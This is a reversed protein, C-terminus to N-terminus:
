GRDRIYEPTAMQLRRPALGRVVAELDDVVMQGIHDYSDQGGGARHPSMVVGRASRIPHDLPLPEEPFVDVAARFRGAVVLDTLADFDVLHSRSMLVFLADPRILSLLRRDLMARNSATPVALVYIVRNDRLLDELAAPEVGDARLCADTVWPDYAQIRCGFPALLPALAHGLSGYGIFGVPKGYLSTDEFMGASGWQETGSRMAADQSAIERWACLTLGLAMEAVAPAFGPACTLMRIGREFATTYDFDRPSPFSGGVELVARLRPFAGVPGYRWGGTVIAVTRDRVEAAAEAPMPEDRAWVIDAFARMREQQEQTFLRGLRRFSPDLIVTEKATM